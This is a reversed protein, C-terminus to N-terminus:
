IHILSLASNHTAIAVSSLLVLGESTITSRDAHAAVEPDNIKM